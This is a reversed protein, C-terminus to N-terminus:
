QRGGQRSLLGRLTALNREDFRDVVLPAKAPGEEKPTELLM